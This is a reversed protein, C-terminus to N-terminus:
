AVDDFGDPAWTPLPEFLVQGTVDVTRRCVAVIAPYERLDVNVQKMGWESDEVYPKARYQQPGEHIIAVEDVNIEIDSIDIIDVVKKGMM